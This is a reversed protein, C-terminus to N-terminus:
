FSHDSWVGIIVARHNYPAFNEILISPFVLVWAVWSNIESDGREISEPLRCPQAVLFRPVAVVESVKFSEDVLGPLGLLQDVFSSRHRRMLGWPDNTPREVM